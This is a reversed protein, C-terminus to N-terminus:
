NEEDFFKSIVSYEILDVRVKNKKSKESISISDTSDEIEREEVSSM